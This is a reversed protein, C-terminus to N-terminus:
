LARMTVAANLSLNLSIPNGLGFTPLTNGIM